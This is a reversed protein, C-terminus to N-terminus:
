RNAQNSTETMQNHLEVNKGEVYFWICDVQRLTATLSDLGKKDLHCRLPTIFEVRYRESLNKFTEKWEKTTFYGGRGRVKDNDRANPDFSEYVIVRKGLELLTRFIEQEEFRYICNKETEDRECDHKKDRKGAVCEGTRLHHLTNSVLIFDFRAEKGTYAEKAQFEGKEVKEIIRRREEIPLGQTRSIIYTPASPPIGGEKHRFEWAELDNEVSQSSIGIARALEANTGFGLTGRDKWLEHIANEREMDTLDKRHLNEVLSELLVREDAIEKVICPIERLDIMQAARWRREGAVIQYGDRYRRVIIPQILRADNLSDALEKLSEKEFSERPQFPNPQIESVRIMKLEM